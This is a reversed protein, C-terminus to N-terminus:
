PLRLRALRERLAELRAASEPGHGELALGAALADFGLQVVQLGRPDAQAAAGGLRRELKGDHALKVVAGIAEYLKLQAPRLDREGAAAADLLGASAELVAQV